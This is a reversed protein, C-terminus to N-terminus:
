QQQCQGPPAGGMGGMGPPMAGGMAQAMMGQMMERPDGMEQHPQSQQGLAATFICSVDEPTLGSLQAMSIIASYQAQLAALKDNTNDPPCEMTKSKTEGASNSYEARVEATLPAATTAMIQPIHSNIFQKWGEPDVDQALAAITASPVGNLSILEQPGKEGAIQVYIALSDEDVMAKKFPSLYLAEKM